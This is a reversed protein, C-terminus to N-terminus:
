GEFASEWPWPQRTGPSPTKQWCTSTKLMTQIGEGHKTLRIKLGKSNTGFAKAAEDITIEGTQLALYTDLLKM